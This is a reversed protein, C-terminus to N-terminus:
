ITLIDLFEFFAFSFYLLELFTCLFLKGECFIFLDRYQLKNITKAFLMKIKWSTGISKKLYPLDYVAMKLM